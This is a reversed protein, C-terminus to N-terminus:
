AVLLRQPCIRCQIASLYNLTAVSMGGVAEKTLSAVSTNSLKNIQEANLEALQATTLGAANGRLKSLFGNNSTSVWKLHWTAIGSVADSTLNAVADAHLTDLRDNSLWGMQDKTFGSANGRLKSLFGSSSSSLDPILYKNVGYISNSTLNAVATSSLADRQQASLLSLHASYLGRSNSNLTALDNVSYTALERPPINSVQSYTYNSLNPM